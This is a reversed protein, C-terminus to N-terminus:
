ASTGNDMMEEEDATVNDPEEVPEPEVVAVVEAELRALQEHYITGQVGRANLNAVRERLDALGDAELREANAHKRRAM